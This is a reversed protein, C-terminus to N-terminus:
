AKRSGEFLAAPVDFTSRENPDGLEDLLKRIAPGAGALAGSDLQDGVSAYGGEALLEAARTTIADVGWELNKGDGAEIRTEEQKEAPAHYHPRKRFLDIRLLDRPEGESPDDRVYLTVGGDITEIERRCAVLRLGGVRLEADPGKWIELTVMKSPANSTM